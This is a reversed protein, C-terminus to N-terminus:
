NVKPKIREAAEDSVICLGAIKRRKLKQLKKEAESYTLNKAACKEFTVVSWRPADLEGTFNEDSVVEKARTINEQMKPTEIPETEENKM